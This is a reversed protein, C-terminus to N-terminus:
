LSPEPGGLTAQLPPPRAAPDAHPMGARAPKAPPRTLPGGPARTVAQPRQQLVPLRDVAHWLHEHVAGAPFTRAPLPPRSLPPALGSLPQHTRMAAPRCAVGATWSRMATAQNHGCPTSLHVAPLHPATSSWAAGVQFQLPMFFFNISAAPIQAAHPPRMRIILARPLTAVWYAIAGALHCM